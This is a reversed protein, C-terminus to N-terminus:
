NLITNHLIHVESISYHKMYLSHHFVSVYYLLPIKFFIYGREIFKTTAGHM